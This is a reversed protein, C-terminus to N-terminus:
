KKKYTNLHRKKLFDLQFTIAHKKLQYLVTYMDARYIVQRTLFLIFNSFLDIFLGFPLFIYKLNKPKM